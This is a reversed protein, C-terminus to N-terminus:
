GLLIKYARDSNIGTHLRFWHFHFEKAFQPHYKALGMKQSLHKGTQEILKLFKRETKSVFVKEKKKNDAAKVLQQRYTKHERIQEPTLGTQSCIRRIAKSEFKNPAHPGFPIPTGTHFETQETIPNYLATPFLFHKNRGKKLKKMQSESIM